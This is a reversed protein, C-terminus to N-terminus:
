ATGGMPLARGAGRGGRPPAPGRGRQPASPQPAPTQQHPIVGAQKLFERPVTCPPNCVLLERPTLVLATFLTQTLHPPPTGSNPPLGTVTYVHHKKYFTTAAPDAKLKVRFQDLDQTFQLKQEKGKKKM